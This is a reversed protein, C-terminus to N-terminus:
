KRFNATDTTPRSQVSIWTKHHTPSVMVNEVMLLWDTDLEAHVVSVELNMIASIIVHVTQVVNM